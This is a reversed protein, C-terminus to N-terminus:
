LNLTKDMILRYNSLQNEKLHLHDSFISDNLYDIQDLYRKVMSSFNYGEIEQLNFNSITDRWYESIFPPILHLHFGYVRSLSVIKTLYEKSLPSFFSYNRDRQKLEPSWDSTLVYPTQCLFYYPIKKVQQFVQRTMLNKYEDKYFPKLFYHYTYVQDLNDWFSLPSYIMYVDEPRNGAKLYNNILCYHGVLGIAQNCTLSFIVSTTDTETNYLQNATSDGIILKKIRTKKKSKEIAAYVEHGHLEKMYKGDSLMITARATYFVGIPLSFLLGKIVFSSLKKM